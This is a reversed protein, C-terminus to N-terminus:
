KKIVTKSFGQAPTFGSAIGSTVYINNDTDIWIVDFDGHAKWYDIGKDLGMVFLATSLADGALGSTGIITVSTLGNSAPYGTSPDIIHHYLVGDEEFFRQYSGSTIVSADKISVYGIVSETDAPNSIAVRWPSKDPKSGIVSINGGLNILASKVGADKLLEVIRDATYGKSVSGLDICVSSPLSVSNAEVTVLRYDVDKILSSISSASPVQKTGTTFGYASVLPYITIDLAGETDECYHLSQKLLYATESSVSVKKEHNLRYIDSSEMTVSLCGELSTVLAKADALIDENGYVSINMFTDMAFFSCSYKTNNKCGSLFLAPFVLILSFLFLSKRLKM